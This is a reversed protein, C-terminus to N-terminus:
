FHSQTPVWLGRRPGPARCEASGAAAAATPPLCCRLGHGCCWPCQEEQSLFSGAQPPQDPGHQPNCQTEQPVGQSCNHAISYPLGQVQGPGDPLYATCCLIRPINTCSFPSTLSPVSTVLHVLSLLSLSLSVSLSLSLSVSLSLSLSLCLYLYLCLSVSPSLCLCLSLSCKCKHSGGRMCEM